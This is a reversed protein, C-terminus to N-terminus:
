FFIYFVTRSCHILIALGILYWIKYQHQLFLQENQEYNRKHATSQVEKQQWLHYAIFIIVANILLRFVIYGILVVNETSFYFKVVTFSDFLTYILFIIALPVLITTHQELEKLYLYEEEGLNNNDDLLEEEM